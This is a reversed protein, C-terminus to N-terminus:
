HVTTQMTAPQKTKQRVGRHTSEFKALLGIDRRFKWVEEKVRDRPYDHFSQWFSWTLDSLIERLAESKNSLMEDLAGTQELLVVDTHYTLDAPDGPELPQAPLRGVSAVARSPCMRFRLSRGLALPKALQARRGARRM